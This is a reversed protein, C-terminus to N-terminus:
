LYMSLQKKTNTNRMQMFKNKIFYIQLISILIIAFAKFYTLIQLNNIIDKIIKSHENRRDNIFNINLNM